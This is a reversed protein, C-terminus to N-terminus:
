SSCSAQFGESSRAAGTISAGRPVFGGTCPRAKPIDGRDLAGATTLWPCKEPLPVPAARTHLGARSVLLDMRQQM